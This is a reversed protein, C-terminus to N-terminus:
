PQQGSLFQGFQVGLPSAAALPSLALADPNSGVQASRYPALSITRTVAATVADIVSIEDSDGNAVYLTRGDASAVAKNPHTGVTITKQQAPESGRLDLVSVTNGGSAYPTKGDRTFALGVFLAAPAPYPVTQTVESTATDIVQLSQADQGDNSVVLWRGDPSVV